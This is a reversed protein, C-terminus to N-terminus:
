RKLSTFKKVLWVDGFSFSDGGERFSGAEPSVCLQMDPEASTKQPRNESDM